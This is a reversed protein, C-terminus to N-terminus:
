VRLSEDRSDIVQWQTARWTFWSSTRSTTSCSDHSDTNLFLPYLLSWAKNVWCRECSSGDALSSGTWYCTICTFTGTQQLCHITDSRGSRRPNRSLTLTVCPSENRSRFTEPRRSSTKHRECFLYALGLNDEKGASYLLIHLPDDLARPLTLSSCSFHHLVLMKKSCSIRKRSYTTIRKIECWFVFFINLSSSCIKVARLVYSSSIVDWVYKATVQVGQQGGKRQQRESICSIYSSKLGLSSSKEPSSTYSNEILEERQSPVKRNFSSHEKQTECVSKKMGKKPSKELLASCPLLLVLVLFVSDRPIQADVAYELSSPSYDKFPFAVCLPVSPLLWFILRCLQISQIHLVPPPLAAQSWRGFSWSSFHFCLHRIWWEIWCSFHLSLFPLVQMVQLNEPSYCCPIEMYTYFWARFDFTREEGQWETTLGFKMDLIRAIELLIGKLEVVGCKRPKLQQDKPKVVGRRRRRM